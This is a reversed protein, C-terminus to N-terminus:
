PRRHIITSTVQQRPLVKIMDINVHAPRTVAWAICDAVDEATLADVGDSVKAARDADGAFRVLYFDTLVMGPAVEIVRIPQGLLELRLTETLAVQGYKAAAYGAGGVYTQRGTISTVTVVRGDGSAALQPLLAKTMRLTGLVNTDYMRHWTQLDAASIPDMGLAMGANNVLVHCETIEATFSAVSEDDTVDLPVARAGIRAALENIRDARRAGLVVDFGEVALRIATAAGIGSSAGTVVAVQKTM